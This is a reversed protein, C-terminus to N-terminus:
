RGRVGSPPLRFDDADDPPGQSDGAPEPEPPIKPEPEAEQRVSRSYTAGERFPGLATTAPVRQLVYPALGTGVYTMEVADFDILRFRFIDPIAEPRPDPFSVEVTGDFELGAMSRIQRAPLQLQAFNDGNSAFRSPRSWTGRWEGDKGDVQELDFRFITAGGLELAWSGELSSRAEQAVAPAPLLLALLFALRLLM